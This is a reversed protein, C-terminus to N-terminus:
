RRRPGPKAPAVVVPAVKGGRKPASPAEQEAAKARGRKPAEAVVVPEPAAKATKKGKAGVAVPAAPAPAKAAARGGAKAPKGASKPVARVQFAELAALSAAECPEGASVPGVETGDVFTASLEIEHTDAAPGRLRVRLGLIPLSMGRSGCFQGGESWPSLWGRGLVAQYELGSAPVDGLEAIGFGEIWRKSGPEGTWSGVHNGVDGRGYIHAVLEMREPAVAPRGPGVKQGANQGAAQAGAEMVGGALRIVQIQPAPVATSAAQYVTVLLKAGSQGVRALTAAAEGLWGQPNVGFMEVAGGEQGPAASIRVGPLGSAQDPLSSDPTNFICYLGPEMTMTYASVKLESVKSEVDNPAGQPM